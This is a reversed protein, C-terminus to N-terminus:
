RGWNPDNRPNWLREVDGTFTKPVKIPQKKSLEFLAQQDEVGNLELVANVAHVGVAELNHADAGGFPGDYDVYLVDADSDKQAGSFGLEGGGPMGKHTMDDKEDTWAIYRPGPVLDKSVNGHLEVFLHERLLADVEKTAAERGMRGRAQIMQERVIGIARTGAITSDSYFIAHIDRPNAGTLASQLIKVLSNLLETRRPSFRTAAATVMDIAESGKVSPDLNTGNHLHVMPQGLQDAYYATRQSADPEPTNLGPSFIRLTDDEPAPTSPQLAYRQMLWDGFEHGNARAEAMAQDITVPGGSSPDTLTGDRTVDGGGKGLLATGIHGGTRAATGLAGGLEGVMGDFADKAGQLRELIASNWDGQGTDGAHSSPRTETSANSSNSTPRRSRAPM